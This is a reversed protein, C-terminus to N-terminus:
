FASFVPLLAALIIAIVGLTAVLRIMKKRKM